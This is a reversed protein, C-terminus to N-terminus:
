QLSRLLARENVDSLWIVVSAVSKVSVILDCRISFGVPVLLSKYAFQVACHKNNLNRRHINMFLTIM